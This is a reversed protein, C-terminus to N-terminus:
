VVLVAAVTLDLRASQLKFEFATVTFDVVFLKAADVKPGLVKELVVLTNVARAGGLAVDDQTMVIVRRKAQFLQVDDRRLVAEGSRSITMDM